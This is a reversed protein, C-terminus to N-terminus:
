PRQVGAQALWDGNRERAMREIGSRDLWRKLPFTERSGCAECAQSYGVHECNLCMRPYLVPRSILGPRHSCLM